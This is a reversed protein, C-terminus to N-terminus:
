EVGAAERALQQAAPVLVGGLGPGYFSTTTEYGGKHYEEETLIYGILDNTLAGIAPYQIGAERLTQKVPLGIATIPEGPFTVMCFDNVRFAYLPAQPPFMVELLQKLQEESVQYESGTIELFGPAAQKEPLDVWTMRISFDTVPRTTIARALDAAIIGVRRGYNEMMEWRSGGQLNAPAVDGEPGNTYLCTVGQGVLDEVTRQMVGPWGGSVLMADAGMITPHATYNVLVVYPQGAETDLRLVTMDEDTPLSADRRNRNMGPLTVAGAGATVPRLAENAEQLAQALRDSVFELIDENFIGIHPNNAINRPDMSMGELGTHTHTAIMLVTEYNLGAIGAKEVSREALAKPLHCVDLSVVASKEGEHEFVVAKGWLSDHVGEAPRGERAGYGGLQTPIDAETPTISAKGVGARLEAQAAHGVLLAAAAWGMLGMLNKM